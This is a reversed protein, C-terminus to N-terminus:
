PKSRSKKPKENRVANLVERLNKGYLTAHQFISTYLLITYYDARRLSVLSLAFLGIAEMFRPLSFSLQFTLYFNLLSFIFLGFSVNRLMIRLAIIRDIRETTSRDERQIVAFLLDWQGPNFDIKEEPKITLFKKYAREEEPVRYWLRM